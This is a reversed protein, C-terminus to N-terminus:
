MKEVQYGKKRLHLLVSDPGALHMAGVLVFEVEKSAMMTEIQPLWLANRDAVLDSYIQPYDKKFDSISLEALKKMDGNRWYRLLKNMTESTNKIDALTYQMLEDEYGEGLTALLNIQYETAELWAQPKGDKNARVSYFKDVGVENLGMLQLEVMTLVVTVMGVKFNEISSIPINRLSLHTELMKFTSNNLVDQLQTGDIYTTMQAFMQQASPSTLAEIDTEFVLIDSLQYAIEYEQPLPYDDKGLVHVTGGIFMSRNDKTIKWVSAAFSQTCVLLCFIISAFHSKM